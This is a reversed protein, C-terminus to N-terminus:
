FNIQIKKATNTFDIQLIYAQRSPAAILTDNPVRICIDGRKLSYKKDNLIYVECRDLEFEIEYETINQKAIETGAYDSICKGDNKIIKFNIM